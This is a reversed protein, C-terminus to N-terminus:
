GQEVHTGAAYIVTKMLVVPFYFMLVSVHLTVISVLPWTTTMDDLNLCQGALIKLRPCRVLIRGKRATVQKRAILM